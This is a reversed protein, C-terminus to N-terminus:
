LGSSGHNTSDFSSDVGCDKVLTLSGDLSAGVPPCSADQEEEDPTGRTRAYFLPVSAGDDFKPGSTSRTASYRFLLGLKEKCFVSVPLLDVM